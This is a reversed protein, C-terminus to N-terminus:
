VAGFIVVGVVRFVIVRPLALLLALERQGGNPHQERQERYPPQQQQGMNQQGGSPHMRDGESRQRQHEFNENEGARENLNSFTYRTPQVYRANGQPM